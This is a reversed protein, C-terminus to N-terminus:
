FVVLFVPKILYCLCIYVLTINVYSSSPFSNFSLPLSYFPSSSLFGLPLGFYLHNFSTSSFALFFPSSQFLVVVSLNHSSLLHHLPRHQFCVRCFAPLMGTVVNSLLNPLGILINSCLM